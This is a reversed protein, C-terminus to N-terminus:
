SFMFAAAIAAVALGKVVKSSTSSIGAQKRAIHYQLRRNRIDWRDLRRQQTVQQQDRAAERLQQQRAQQQEFYATKYQSRDAKNQWRETKRRSRAKVLCDATQGRAKAAAADRQAKLQACQMSTVNNAPKGSPNQARQMGSAAVREVCRRWEADLIQVEKYAEATENACVAENTKAGADQRATRRSKWM